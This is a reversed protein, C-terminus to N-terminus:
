MALNRILKKDNSQLFNKLNLYIDNTLKQKKLISSYYQVKQMTLCRIHVNKTIASNGQM